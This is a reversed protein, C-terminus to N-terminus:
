WNDGKGKVPQGTSRQYTVLRSRDREPSQAVVIPVSWLSMTLMAVTHGDIAEAVEVLERRVFAVGV